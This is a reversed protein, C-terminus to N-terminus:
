KIQFRYTSIMKMMVMLRNIKLILDKIHFNLIIMMKLNIKMWANMQNTIKIVKNHNHSNHNHSNNDRRVKHQNKEKIHIINM